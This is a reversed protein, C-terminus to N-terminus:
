VEDASAVQKQKNKPSCGKQLSRTAANPVPGGASGPLAQDASRRASTTAAVSSRDIRRRATSSPSTIRRSSPSVAAALNVSSATVSLTGRETSESFTLWQVLGSRAPQSVDLRLVWSSRHSAEEITGEHRGDHDRYAGRNGRDRLARGLVEQELFLAEASGAPRRELIRSPGADAATRGTILIHASGAPLPAHPTTPASADSASGDASRAQARALDRM